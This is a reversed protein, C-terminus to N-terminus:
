RALVRSCRDLLISASVNNTPKLRVVTSCHTTSPSGLLKKAGLRLERQPAPDRGSQCRMLGVARPVVFHVARENDIILTSAAIPVHCYSRSSDLSAPSRVRTKKHNCFSTRPLTGALIAFKAQV